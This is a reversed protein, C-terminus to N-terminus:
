GHFRLELNVLFYLTELIHKDKASLRKLEWNEPWRWGHDEEEEEKIRGYGLM